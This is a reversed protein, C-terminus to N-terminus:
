RNTPIINITDTSIKKFAFAPFENLKGVLFRFSPILGDCRHDVSIHLFHGLFTQAYRVRLDRYALIVFLDRYEFLEKLDLGIGKKRSDFKVDAM